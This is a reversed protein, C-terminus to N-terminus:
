NYWLGAEAAVERNMPTGRVIVANGAAMEELLAPSTGTTPSTQVYAFAHTVLQRYDRGFRYAAFHVGPSAMARVATRYAAAYPADGVIVLHLDRAHIQQFAAILQDVKTEPELRGVWLIYGRREVGLERLVDDGPEAIPEAGYAIFRVHAGLDQRYHRQIAGNDAVVVNVAHTAVRASSRLYM